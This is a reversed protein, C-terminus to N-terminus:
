HGVEQGGTEAMVHGAVPGTEVDLGSLLTELDARAKAEDGLKRFLVGRNYFIQGNKPSIAAARNYDGLAEDFRKLESLANARNILASVNTRDLKSVQSFYDLAEPYDHRLFAIIGIGM